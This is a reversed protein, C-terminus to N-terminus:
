LLSGGMCELLLNGHGSNFLRFINGKRSEILRKREGVKKVIL